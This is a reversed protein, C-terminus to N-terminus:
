RVLEVTVDGLGTRGLLRVREDVRPALEPGDEVHTLVRPGDDLDVYGLTYPSEHGGGAVHITTTAWLVGDPGFRAPATPSGCRACRPTRLASPHRCSECRVGVLLPGDLGDEVVPRPDAVVPDAATSM